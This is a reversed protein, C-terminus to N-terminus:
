PTEKKWYKIGHRKTDTFGAARLIKGVRMADVVSHQGLPKKVGDELVQAIQFPEARDEVWRLVAGAWDDSSTFPDQGTRLWQDEEPTLWWQEGADVAAVAESWIRRRAARVAAIDIKGVSIPWFRRAGTEDDLFQSSNTTGVLVCDRKHHHHLRDYRRHLKDEKGSIFAKTTTWERRRLADLESLEYLWVGKLREYADDTGIELKSDCYWPTSAMVEFFTSKQTGQGGVLVLVTDVKCGPELARKAASMVWKRLLLRNLPSDEAGLMLPMERIAEIGDWPEERLWTRVAHYPHARAVMKIADLVDDKSLRLPTPKKSKSEVTFKREIAIRLRVIDVDEIRHRGIEEEQTMENWEIKEGGLVGGMDESLIREATGVSRSLEQPDSLSPRIKLLKGGGREELTPYDPPEDPAAM